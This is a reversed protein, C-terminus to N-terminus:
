ELSNVKRAVRDRLAEGDGEFRGQLIHPLRARIDAFSDGYAQGPIVAFGLSSTLLCGWHVLSTLRLEGPAPPDHHCGAVEAIEEPFKWRRALWAGAACHDVEFLERETDRLDFGHEQSVLILNSYEDPYNVMLGLLGIDHLLGATYARDEEFYSARALEESVLACALSHRWCQRLTAIRLAPRLYSGMSVSMALARVQDFGLLVLAHQLSSVQASLGYLASNSRRLIEASFAADSRLLEILRRVEADPRSLLQLLKTAVSPFAPLERLAWPCEETTEPNNVDLANM